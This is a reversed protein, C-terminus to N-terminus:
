PGGRVARVSLPSVKNVGNAGGNLFSVDFAFFGGSPTSSWYGDATPGFIPDICPSAGCPAPGPLITQLEALNPLRWDCQGAFCTGNLSAAIGGLFNTFATGDAASGTASWSYTNSEDHVSADNTKKEWQLATLNDTITGDGNDVFRSADCTAGTGSARAQLKVWTKTYKVRCLAVAVELNQFGVGFNIGGGLYQALARQECAAYREAAAYRGRQCQQEPTPTTVAHALRIALLGGATWAVVLVALALTKM